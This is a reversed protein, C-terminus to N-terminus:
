GEVKERRGYKLINQSAIKKWRKLMQDKLRLNGIINDILLKQQTNKHWRHVQLNFRKGLIVSWCNRKQIQRM